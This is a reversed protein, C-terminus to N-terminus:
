PNVKTPQMAWLIKRTEIDQPDLLKYEYAIGKDPMEWVLVERLKLAIKFPVGCSQFHRLVQVAAKQRNTLHELDVQQGEIILSRLHEISRFDALNCQAIIRRAM